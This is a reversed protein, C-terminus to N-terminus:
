RGVEVVTKVGDREPEVAEAYREMPMRRTILRALLGPWRREIEVMSQVGREFYSRNSNVTTVISKNRYLMERLLEDLPVSREGASGPFVGTLCCVSNAALM